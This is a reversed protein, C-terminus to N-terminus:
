GPLTASSPLPLKLGKASPRSFLIAVGDMSMSIRIRRTRMSTIFDVPPWCTGHLLEERSSGPNAKLGSPTRERWYSWCGPCSKSRANQFETLSVDSTPINFAYRHMGLPDNATSAFLKSARRSGFRGAAVETAGCLRACCPAPLDFPCALADSASVAFGVVAIREGTWLFAVLPRQTSPSMSRQACSGSPAGLHRGFALFAQSWVAMSTGLNEMQLTTAANHQSPAETLNRSLWVPGALGWRSRPSCLRSTPPM